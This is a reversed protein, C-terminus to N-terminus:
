VEQDNKHLIADITSRLIAENKNDNLICRALVARLIGLEYLAYEATRPTHPNIKNIQQGIYLSYKEILTPDTM